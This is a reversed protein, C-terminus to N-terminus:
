AFLIIKPSRQGLGMRAFPVDAEMADIRYLKWRCTVIQSVLTQEYADQPTLTAEM